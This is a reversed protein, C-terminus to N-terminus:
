LAHYRNNWFIYFVILALVGGALLAAWLTHTLGRHSLQAIHLDIDPAIGMALATVTVIKAARIKDHTVLGFIIFGFVFLVIGFHGLPNM